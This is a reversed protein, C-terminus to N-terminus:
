DQQKEKRMNKANEEYFQWEDMEQKHKRIEEDTTKSSLHYLDENRM